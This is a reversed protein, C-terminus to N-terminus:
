IVHVLVIGKKYAKLRSPTEAGKTKKTEGRTGDPPRKLRGFSRWVVHIKLSFNISRFILKWQYKCYDTLMRFTLIEPLNKTYIM